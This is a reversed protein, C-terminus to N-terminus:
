VHAGSELVITLVIDQFTNHVIIHENRYPCWLLHTGLDDITHCVLM